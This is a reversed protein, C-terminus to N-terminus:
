GTLYLILIKTLNKPWHQTLHILNGYPKSFFKGKVSICHVSFQFALLTTQTEFKALGGKGGVKYFTFM